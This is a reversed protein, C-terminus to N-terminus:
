VAASPEVLTETSKVSDKGWRSRASARGAKIANADKFSSASIAASVQEVTLRGSEIKRLFKRAALLRLSRGGIVHDEDDQLSYWGLGNAVMRIGHVQVAVKAHHRQTEIIELRKELDDLRLSLALFQKRNGESM